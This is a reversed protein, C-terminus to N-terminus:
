EPFKKYTDKGLLGMAQADKKGFEVTHPTMGRRKMMCKAPDSRIMEIDELLGSKYILALMLQTSSSVKGQIVNISTLAEMPGIGLEKGRMMIAIVQEPQRLTTPLMGSRILLEAQQMTSLAGNPPAPILVKTAELKVIKKAKAKTTM